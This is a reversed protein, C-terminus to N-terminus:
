LEMSGTMPSYVQIRCGGALAKLQAMQMSSHTLCRRDAVLLIDVKGRIAADVFRRFGPRKWLPGRGADSSSGTVEFGMQEAYGILQCRQKKLAENEDEPADISCYAWARKRGDM